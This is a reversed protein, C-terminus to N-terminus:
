VQWHPCLQSRQAKQFGKTIGQLCLIPQLSLDPGPAPVSGGGLIGQAKTAEERSHVNATESKLIKTPGM